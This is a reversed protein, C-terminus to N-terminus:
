EPCRMAATNRREGLKFGPQTNSTIRPSLILTLTPLSTKQSGSGRLLATEQRRRGMALSPVAVSGPLSNTPGEVTVDARDVDVPSKDCAVTNGGVPVLSVANM